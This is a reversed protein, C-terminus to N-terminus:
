PNFIYIKQGTNRCDLHVWNVGSELRIPYPLEDQNRVLWNRVEEATMGKVSFDDAQATIHASMYVQGKDTKSKVLNCLNCRVGSQTDSGGWYYNNIEIVPNEGKEEALKKWIWDMTKILRPDIFQWATQGYKDYIHKCVLEHLQFHKAKIPM